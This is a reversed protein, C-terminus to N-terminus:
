RGALSTSLKGNVDWAGRGDAMSSIFNARLSNTIRPPKRRALGYLLRNIWSGIYSGNQLAASYSERDAEVLTAAAHRRDANVTELTAGGLVDDRV